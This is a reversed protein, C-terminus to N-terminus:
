REKLSVCGQDNCVPKMTLYQKMPFHLNICVFFGTFIVTNNHLTPYRYYGKQQSFASFVFAGGSKTYGEMTADYMWATYPKLDPNGSRISGRITNDTALDTDAPVNTVFRITNNPIVVQCPKSLNNPKIGSKTM